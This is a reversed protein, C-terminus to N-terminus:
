VVEEFAFAVGYISMENADWEASPDSLRALMKPSNAYIRANDAPPVRIDPRISITAEGSGNTTVDEVLMFFQGEIRLYDGADAINSSPDLGDITLTDGAQSGGNVKGVDGPFDSEDWTWTDADFKFTNQDFSVGSNDVFTNPIKHDPDPLEFTGIRGTLSTLWALWERALGKLPPLNLTGAWRDGSLKQDQSERTLPSAFSSQNFDLKIHATKFNPSAPLQRPYTIAM